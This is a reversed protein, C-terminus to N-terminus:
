IKVTFTPKIWPKKVVNQVNNVQKQLNDEIVCIGDIVSEAKIWNIVDIESLQDVVKHSNDKFTWYGETRVGSKELSYKVQTIVENEAILDIIKWIM